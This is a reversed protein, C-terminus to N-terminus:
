KNEKLRTLKDQLDCIKNSFQEQNQKNQLNGKLVLNFLGLVQKVLYILENVKNDKFGIKTQARWEKYINCHDTLNCELCSHRSGYACNM